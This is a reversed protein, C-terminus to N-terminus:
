NQPVPRLVSFDPRRYSVKDFATDVASGADVLGLGILWELFTLM